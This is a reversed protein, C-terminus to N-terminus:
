RRKTSSEIYKLGKWCIGITFHLPTTHATFQLHRFRVVNLLLRIIHIIIVIISPHSACGEFNNEKM